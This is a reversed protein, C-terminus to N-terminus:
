LANLALFREAYYICVQNYQYNFFIDFAHGAHPFEGLICTRDANDMAAQLERSHIPFVLKDALGQFCLVPPSTPSVLDVPNFYTFQSYPVGFLAADSSDFIRSMNAPPYFPIIGACDFGVSYNGAFYPDDHGLGCVLALHAGASRGLFFTRSV